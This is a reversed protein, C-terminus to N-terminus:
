IEITTGDALTKEYTTKVVNGKADTHRIRFMETRAESDGCTGVAQEREITLILGPPATGVTKIYNFETDAAANTADCILVMNYSDEPVCSFHRMGCRCMIGPRGPGPVDLPARNQVM